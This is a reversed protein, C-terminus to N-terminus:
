TTSLADVFARHELSSLGGQLTAVVSQMDGTLLADVDLWLGPFVQSQLIGDADPLLAVYTEDQLVFWDLKNEFMQWVIYLLMLRKHLKAKTYRLRSDGAGIVGQLAIAVGAVSHR